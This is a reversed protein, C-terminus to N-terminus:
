ADIIKRIADLEKRRRKLSKISISEAIKTHLRFVNFVIESLVFTAGSILTMLLNGFLAGAFLIGIAAFISALIFQAIVSFITRRRKFKSAIEIEMNDTITKVSDNMKGNKEQMSKAIQDKELIAQDKSTGSKELEDVKSTANQLDSYYERQLEHPDLASERGSRACTRAMASSIILPNRLMTFDRDAIRNEKREKNLIGVYKAWERESPAVSAYCTETLLRFPLDANKLGILTVLYSAMWTHLYVTKNNENEDLFERSYQELSPSNTLFIAGANKLTGFTNKSRFLSTRAISQVDCEVSATPHKPDKMRSSVYRYLGNEDIVKGYNDKRYM